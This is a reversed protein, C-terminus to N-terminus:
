ADDDNRDARGNIRRGIRYVTKPTLQRVERFTRAVQELSEGAALRELIERDRRALRDKYSTM